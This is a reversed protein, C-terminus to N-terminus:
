LVKLGYWNKINGRLVVFVFSFSFLPEELLLWIGPFLNNARQIPFAPRKSNVSALLCDTAKGFKALNSAPLYSQSVAVFFPCTSLVQHQRIYNAWYYLHVPMHCPHFNSNTAMHTGELPINEWCAPPVPNCLHSSPVLISLWFVHLQANTESSFCIGRGLSLM